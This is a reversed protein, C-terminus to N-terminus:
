HVWLAMFLASRATILTSPILTTVQGIFSPQSSLEPSCISLRTKAQPLYRFAVLFILVYMLPSAVVGLVTEIGTMNLNLRNSALNSILNWLTNAFLLALFSIGVLFAIV